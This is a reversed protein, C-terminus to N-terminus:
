SNKRRTRFEGFVKVFRKGDCAPPDDAADDDGGADVDHEPGQQRVAQVVELQHERIHVVLLLLRLLVQLLLRHSVVPEQLEAQRTSPAEGYEPEDDKKNKEPKRRCTYYVM